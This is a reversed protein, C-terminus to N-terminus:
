RNGGDGYFVWVRSVRFMLATLVAVAALLVWAMASAYGFQFDTFGKQYLYLTYFLTSDAPGGTGGSIVFAPTFAQFSNITELLVNFFIVPSLMPLTIHRFREWKNAGDVDVADYLESPIQKLGALFIVMPAGFQWCALLIIAPLAWSPDNIFDTKPLGLSALGDSVAGGQSFLSRWVLAVAVSTGLLSPLYFLSRYVGIGRRKRNLLMAVGLALALKVPTVVVVYILTVRVSHMFRPDATFMQHYNAFGVWKPSQLLDYNTFSLYLSYVLPGITFIAIGALWPLLFVYGATRDAFGQKRNTRHERTAPTPSASARKDLRATSSM